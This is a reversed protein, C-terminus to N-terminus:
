NKQRNGGSRRGDRTRFNEQSQSQSQPQYDKKSIELLAQYRGTAYGSQYWAMLMANFSEELEAAGTSGGGERNQYGYHNSHQQQQQDHLGRSNDGACGGEEGREGASSQSASHSSSPFYPISQKGATASQHGMAEAYNEEHSRGTEERTSSSLYKRFSGGIKTKDDASTSNRDRMDITSEHSPWESSGDENHNYVKGDASRTSSIHHQSPNNNSATCSEAISPMSSRPFDSKPKRKGESNLFHTAAPQSQLAMSKSSANSSKQLTYFLIRDFFSPVHCCLLKM